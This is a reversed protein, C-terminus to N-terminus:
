GNTFSVDCIIAAIITTDKPVLISCKFIGNKCLTPKFSANETINVIPQITPIVFAIFRISPKSPNDVPIASIDHIDNNIINENFLEGIIAIIITVANAPASTPNKGYLKLGALVKIPSIPEFKIPYESATIDINRLLLFM